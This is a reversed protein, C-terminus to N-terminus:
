KNKSYNEKITDKIKNVRMNITMHSIGIRKAIERQSLGWIFHLQYLKMDYSPLALITSTIIDIKKQDELNKEIILEIDEPRSTDEIGELTLNSGNDEQTTNFTDDHKKNKNNRIYNMYRNKISMFIYSDNLKDPNTRNNEIMNLLLDQLIDQAVEKNSCIIKSMNLWRKYARDDINM